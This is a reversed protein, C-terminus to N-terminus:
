LRNLYHNYLEIKSDFYDELILIVNGKLKKRFYKKQNSLYLIEEHFANYLAHYADQRYLQQAITKFNSIRNIVTIFENKLTRSLRKDSYINKSLIEIIPEM